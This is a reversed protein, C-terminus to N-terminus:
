EEYRIKAMDIVYLPYFEYGELEPDIAVFDALDQLYVNAATESLIELCRKYHATKEDEDLSNQALSYEADYEANSYNIMNKGNGTVWRALMGSAALTSSDFGVVTAQFNREGYVESLWTNWDIPTIKATIGSEELQEVLVMAADMHPGYNSPVKMTFTLGDPYGAQSLLEKAKEPDHPYADSLSEDFYKTFAPYMSSGVKTGHGDATLSLLADKDVAYCLAKRVLENNFPEINNNLYIAQVLNMTGELVNYGNTLSGIQDTTLHAVLDLAGSNLSTFLATGDAFIKYTVKDLHAKDGYYEDHKAIVFNEQVSRSVFKFPGTGCPKTNHESYNEPVIYVSSVYSLFDSNPSGLTITIVNDEASISKIDSLATVVASTVSTAACTKFSYLVDNADCVEGNHFIVNDRLNFTYTLLDESLKYESAVACVFNGDSDPKVLGEFVNFMVERTGAATMMYPDLSNDLDQAIGVVIENSKAGSSSLDNEDGNQSTAGFCGSLSCTATILTSIMLFIAIFRKM